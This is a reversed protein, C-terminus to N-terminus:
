QCMIIVGFILVPMPCFLFLDFYYKKTVGAESNLMDKLITGMLSDNVSGAGGVM